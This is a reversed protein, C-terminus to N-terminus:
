GRYNRGHWAVSVTTKSKHHMLFIWYWATVQIWMSFLSFYQDQFFQMVLPYVSAAYYFLWVGGLRIAKRYLWYHLILFLPVVFIGPYWFDRFYVGYVTFVNTPDPVFTYDRVLQVPQRDSLGLAHLVAIFFRFTNEGWGLPPESVVLNSFAVLPTFAYGMISKSFSDINDSLNSSPSIGKATMAAVLVFSSAGTFVSFLIGRLSTLGSIVLPVLMLCLFLMIATRGSGLYAYSLSVFISFVLRGLRAKKQRYSFATLSSVVYSLISFYSLLGFGEGDYTIAYRLKTYGLVTFISDGGALAVAQLYVFPLAITVMIQAILILRDQSELIHLSNSFEITEKNQSYSMFLLLFSLCKAVLLLIVVEPSISTYTQRSIYYGLIIVFWVMFYIQFPNGLGMRRHSALMLGVFTIVLLCELM